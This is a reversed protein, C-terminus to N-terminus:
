TVTVEEVMGLSSHADGSSTPIQCLVVYRGPELELQLDQTADPPLAQVGGVPTAPMTEGAELAEVVEAAGAGEDLRGVILEHPEATSTNTVRLLADRSIAGPLAFRYDSLEVEVDAEPTPVESRGDVEFARAMGHALHLARDPGEVFCLLAYDGAPLDVVADASSTEGPAVLATGGAFTGHGLAAPPGGAAVAATLQDVTAGPDLRFVQAHHPEDGENVLTLRTPGAPLPDPLEFSYAPAGAAGDEAAVVRVEAIAGGGGGGAEDDGCAPVALLALPPLLACRLLRGTWRGAPRSGVVTGARTSGAMSSSGTAPVRGPVGGAAPARGAPVHLIARAHNALRTM